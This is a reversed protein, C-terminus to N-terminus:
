DACEGQLPSSASSSVLSPCVEGSDAIIVDEVPKDGRGKPVAEITKIVDMQEALPPPPPVLYLSLMLLSANALSGKM